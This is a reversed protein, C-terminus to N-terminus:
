FAEPHLYEALQRVARIFHHNLAGAHDIHYVRGSRVASVGALAPDNLIARVFSEGSDTIIVEPNMAIITERDIDKWGVIGHSAALNIGGAMEIIDHMSTQSGTTSGWASWSLVAPRPRGAIAAAIARSEERFQEVLRRAREDEGTIEGVRLINELADEVTEFATFTYVTLGLNRLQRVADQDSWSAVLVIDPRQTLIVEANLQDIRVMHPALRDAVYSVDPDAAYRTVGVVRQPDVLELLINDTALTASFIRQPPRELRIVHGLGDTVTRPFAPEEAAAIAATWVFALLALLLPCARNGKIM